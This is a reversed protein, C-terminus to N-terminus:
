VLNGDRDIKIDKFIGPELAWEQHYGYGLTGKDIKFSGDEDVSTITVWGGWNMGSVPHYEFKSGGGEKSYAENAKAYSGKLKVKMGTRLNM